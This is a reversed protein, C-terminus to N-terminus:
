RGSRRGGRRVVADLAVGCSPKRPTYRTSGSPLPRAGARRRSRALRVAQAERGVLLAQEDVVGLAHVDAHEVHLASPVSPLPLTHALERPSPGPAGSPMFISLAPLRYQQPGPPMWTNSASPAVREAHDVHGAAGGVEGPALVVARLRNMVAPALSKLSRISTGPRAQLPLAGRGDADLTRADVGLIRAAQAYLAALQPEGLLSFGGRARPDRARDPHRVSLVAVVGAGLEGMLGRTRVGFLHHLLGGADGSRKVGQAFAEADPTGEEMMRGLISHQKLVAYVEGTMATSFREIRGDRM